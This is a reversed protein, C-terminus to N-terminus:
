DNQENSLWESLGGSENFADLAAAILRGRQESTVYCLSSNGGAPYVAHSCEFRVYIPEVEFASRPPGTSTSPENHDASCFLRLSDPSCESGGCRCNGRDDIASQCKPCMSKIMMESM